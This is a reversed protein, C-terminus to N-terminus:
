DPSCPSEEAGPGPARAVQGLLCVDDGLDVRQAVEVRWGADPHSAAPLPLVGTAEIQGVLKPAVFLAVRQALGAQLFSGFVEGGGEVLISQVGDGGLHDLLADVGVRGDCAPLGIVDVRDPDFAASAALKDAATYIRPRSGSGGDFLRASPELRLSGSVAVRLPQRADDGLRVTGRPDDHRITGGGFVVADHESRLRHAFRRASAGSIWQSVGDRAALQGDLSIAAKLTVFPRRTTQWHFFPANLRLAAERRLGTDVQVGHDRLRALGAGDVRPNPDRVAAVVRAVGAAILADSCPPTRGHHSCPELNVYVTAGRARDGARELALVEAHPQGAARHYGFGVREGDRVIVCGVQPNPPTKGRGLSALALAEDMWRRDDAPRDTM